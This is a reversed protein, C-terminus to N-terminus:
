KIFYFRAGHALSPELMQEATAASHLHASYPSPGHLHLWDVIPSQPDVPSLFELIHPGLTFRLGAAGLATNEIREGPVGLLSNYWQGAQRWEGVAITLKAIGSAGNNHNFQQPIRESRPTTDEILFPAVGRHSPGALSLLWKLEYGDPRTRSWPVPDKIEVGAARLKQTDGRLDNTRLCYDVLREGHQLPDWWRHDAAKRYFAIIEIYSGDALPILVNHSGVPHRGGPVVTFGLDTFDRAAQDLDSVVIVLHDIGLVM